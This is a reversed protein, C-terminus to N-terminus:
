RPEVFYHGNICKWELDTRGSEFLQGNGRDIWFATRRAKDEATNGKPASITPEGLDQRLPNAM